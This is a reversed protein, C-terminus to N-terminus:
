CTALHLWLEANVHCESAQTTSIMDTWENGIKDGLALCCVVFRDEFRNESSTARRRSDTHQSPNGVFNLCSYTWTDEFLRELSSMM